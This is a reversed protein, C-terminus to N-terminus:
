HVVQVFTCLSQLRTYTLTCSACTHRHDLRMYYVIGLAVLVARRHYDVREGHPTYKSYVSMLWEYFTFIRQIDRQSVTSRSSMRAEAMSLGCGRLMCNKEKGQLVEHEKFLFAATTSTVTAVTTSVSRSHSNTSGAYLEDVTLLALLYFCKKAFVFIFLTSNQDVGERCLSSSEHPFWVPTNNIDLTWSWLM